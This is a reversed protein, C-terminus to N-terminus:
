CAICRHWGTKATKKLQYSERGGIEMSDCRSRRCVLGYLAVDVRLYKLVLYTFFNLSRCCQFTDEERELHKDRLHHFLINLGDLIDGDKIGKGTVFRGVVRFDEKVTHVLDYYKSYIKDVNDSLKKRAEMIDQRSADVTFKSMKKCLREYICLHFINIVCCKMM